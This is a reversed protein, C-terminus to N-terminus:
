LIEDENLIYIVICLDKLKTYKYILLFKNSDKTTKEILIPKETLIKKYILDLNVFRDRSRVILHDTDKIGYPNNKVNQLINPVDDKTYEM